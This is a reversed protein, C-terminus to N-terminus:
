DAKYVFKGVYNGTIEWCYCLIKSLTSVELNHVKCLLQSFDSLGGFDDMLYETENSFISM